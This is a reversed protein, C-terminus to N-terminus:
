DAERERCTRFLWHRIVINSLVPSVPFLVGSRFYCPNLHLLTTLGPVMSCAM